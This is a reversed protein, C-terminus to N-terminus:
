TPPRNIRAVSFDYRYFYADVMPLDNGKELTYTWDLEGLETRTGDLAAYVLPGATRITAYGHKAGDYVYVEVVQKSSHVKLAPANIGGWGINDRPNVIISPLMVEHADYIGHSDDHSLGRPGLQDRTFIRSGVIATLPTTARLLTAVIEDLPASM